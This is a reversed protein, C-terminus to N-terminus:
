PPALAPTHHGRKRKAKAARPRTGCGPVGREQGESSLIPSRTVLVRFLAGSPHPSPGGSCRPSDPRPEKTTNLNYFPIRKLSDPAPPPGPRTRRAHGAARQRPPCHPRRGTGSRGGRGRGETNGHAFAGGRSQRSKSGCSDPHLLKQKSPDSICNESSTKGDFRM